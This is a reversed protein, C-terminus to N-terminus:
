KLNEIKLNILKLVEEVMKKAGLSECYDYENGFCNLCLNRENVEEKLELLILLKSLKISMGMEIKNKLSNFDQEKISEAMIESTKIKM